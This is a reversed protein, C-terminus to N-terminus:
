CENRNKDASKQVWMKDKLSSEGKGGWLGGKDKRM